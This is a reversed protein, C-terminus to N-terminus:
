LLKIVHVLSQFKWDFPSSDSGMAERAADPTGIFAAGEYGTFTVLQDAHLAPSGQSARFVLSIMQAKALEKGDVKNARFAATFQGNSFRPDTLLRGELTVVTGVPKGLRGILTIKHDSIDSLQVDQAHLPFPITLLLPAIVAILIHKM